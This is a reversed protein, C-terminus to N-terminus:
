SLILRADQDCTTGSCWYKGGKESAFSGCRGELGKGGSEGLENVTGWGVSSCGDVIMLDKVLLCLAGEFMGSSSNSGGVIELDRLPLCRLAGESTGASRLELHEM